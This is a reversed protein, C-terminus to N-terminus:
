DIYRSEREVEVAARVDETWAALVEGEAYRCAGIAYAYGDGAHEGLKEELADLAAVLDADDTLGAEVADCAQMIPDSSEYDCNHIIGYIRAM